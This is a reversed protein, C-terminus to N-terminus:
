SARGDGSRECLSPYAVHRIITNGQREEEPWPGDGFMVIQVVVPEDTLQLAKEARQVRRQISM